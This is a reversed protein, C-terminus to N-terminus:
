RKRKGENLLDAITSPDTLEDDVLDFVLLAFEVMPSANGDWTNAVHPNGCELWLDRCFKALREHHVKPPRGGKSKPLGALAAAAAKAITQGCLIFDDSTLVNVKFQFWAAEYILADTIQDCNNFAEIADAPAMKSIAMLTRKVDQSTIAHREVLYDRYDRCVTLERIVSERQVPSFRHNAIGELSRWDRETVAVDQVMHGIKSPHLEKSTNRGSM